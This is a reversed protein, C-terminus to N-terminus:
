APRGNTVKVGRWLVLLVRRAPLRLVLGERFSARDREFRVPAFLRVQPAGDPVAAVAVYPLWTRGPQPVAQPSM